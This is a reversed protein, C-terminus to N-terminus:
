LKSIDIGLSELYSVNLRYSKRKDIKEEILVDAAVLKSIHHSLTPQSLKAAESCSRTIECTLKAEAQAAIQRVLGLRVDDALAKLVAVTSNKSM